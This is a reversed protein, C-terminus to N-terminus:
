ASHRRRVALMAGLALFLATVPEPTHIFSESGESDYGQVHIGVRMVGTNLEDIVTQFNAGESITYEIGLSEYPNIGLPQVPPDSDASLAADAVFVPVVNQARPLNPPSPNPSFEVSGITNHIVALNLLSGDDIYIDTISSAQSGANRFTFLVRGFGADTVELSMQAEGILADALNNPTPIVKFSYLEGLGIVPWM